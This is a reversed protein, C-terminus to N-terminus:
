KSKTLKELQAGILQKAAQAALEEAGLSIKPSSFTGDIQVPITQVVGGGPLAVQAAYDITQDLGTSGSMNIHIGGMKLEFPLTTIRGDHIAFRIVADRAEITRLEDNNLAKALAAFADLQQVRVDSSRIEGTAQLTQLDPNMGGDLTTSMNWSLSYNGSTKAFLPAFQRVIELEDFTKKFSAGELGLNMRVAPRAPDAPASYCGSVTARGGFLRMNLRDLSLTGEAVRVGGVLDTPTMDRFLVKHLDANMSLCLNQPVRLVRLVTSDSAPTSTATTEAPPTVELLENLDLLDSKVYLRGALMGGRLLYGLYGTLQGNAALDSRGVTLGFEGLTMSQPTITAAARRLHVVPLTPLTLEMTEVVFSGSAAIQEYNNHEIDSMRAAIKLDAVIEGSLDAGEELPYAQRITGLDMRGAVSMRFEPDSILHTAHLTASLSNRGMRLGFQSLDVETNDLAGGPNAVKFVLNIDTVAKPRSSYQFSGNQVVTKLEFAPLQAGRKEGHVWLDMTLDGAASLNNFEHMYFAPILSLLDKFQVRDCGTKLDVGLSEDDCLEVWGDFTLNISNLRLKNELLTYRNHKLDAEIEADLRADAGSLVPIGASVIRVGRTKLTLDLNTKEASLDGRLRLSAPTTVCSVRTSDDEYRISADSIRLDRVAFRFASAEGAPHEGGVASHGEGTAVPKMVDWNVAGDALKRAHLAPASLHIKTVEFGEDGWLSSLDVVGSIRDARLITDGAFRDVGMLTLGKLELSAYPFHRLLSINLKEFDLKAALMKSAETKVVAELKARFALPVVVAAVVFLAVVCAAFLAVKKM